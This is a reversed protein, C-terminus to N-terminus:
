RVRAYHIATIRGSSDREFVVSAPAASSIVQAIMWGLPIGVLVGVLIGIALAETKNV